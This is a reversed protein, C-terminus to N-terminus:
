YRRLTDLRAAIFEALSRAEGLAFRHDHEADTDTVLALAEGPACLRTAHGAGARFVEIKFPAQRKYGEAVVLDFDGFFRRAIEDLPLEAALRGACGWRRGKARVRCTAREHGATTYRV